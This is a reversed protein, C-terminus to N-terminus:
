LKPSRTILERLLTNTDRVETQLRELNKNTNGLQEVLVAVQTKQTELEKGAATQDAKVATITAENSAMRQNISAAWWIAAASQVFLTFILAIPVRKDLHWQEAVMEARM